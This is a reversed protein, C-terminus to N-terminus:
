NEEVNKPRGDRREVLDRFCGSIKAICSIEHDLIEYVVRVEKFPILRGIRGVELSYRVCDLDHDRLQGFHRILLHVEGRERKCGESGVLLLAPAGCTLREHETAVNTM